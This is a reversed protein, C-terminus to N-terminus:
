QDQMAFEGLETEGDSYYVKTTQTEFDANASPIEIIRYLLFFGIVGLVFGGVGMVLLWRLAKTWVPGNGGIRRFLGPSKTTGRRTTTTLVHDKDDTGSPIRLDDGVAHRLTPAGPGVAM